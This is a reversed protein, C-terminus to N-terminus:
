IEDPDEDNNDEKSKMDKTFSLFTDLLSSGRSLWNSDEELKEHIYDFGFNAYEEMNKKLEAVARQIQFEGKDLAIYDIDTRAVLAMFMYYRIQPYAKRMKRNEINGWYMIPQGLGKRKIPDQNLPKKKDAYLGIFFAIIYLEYGAGLIKAKSETFENYGKGYDCYQRILNEYRTEFDPNKKGWLDYLTEAM